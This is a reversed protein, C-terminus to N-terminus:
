TASEARAKLGRVFREFSPGLDPISRAILPRLLGSFEERMTFVTGEGQPELTFTRVGRFLGLPLGGTWVMRRAVDWETVRVPFARGPSVASVVRIAAGPAIRGEVREVGSDWASMGPGDTLISWVRSPLASIVAQAEFHMLMGTWAVWCRVDYMVDHTM